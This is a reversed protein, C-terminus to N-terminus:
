KLMLSSKIIILVQEQIWDVNEPPCYDDESSRSITIVNPKCPLKSILTKFSELLNGIETYVLFM